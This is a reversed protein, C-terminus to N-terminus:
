KTQKEKKKKLITKVIRPGRMEIDIKFDTWWCRSFFYAMQSKPQEIQLGIQPDNLM